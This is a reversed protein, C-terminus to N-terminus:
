NETAGSCMVALAKSAALRSYAASLRM